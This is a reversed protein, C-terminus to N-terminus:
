YKGMGVCASLFVCVSGRRSDIVGVECSLEAILSVARVYHSRRGMVWWSLSLRMLSSVAHYLSFVQARRLMRRCGLM